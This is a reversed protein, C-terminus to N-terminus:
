VDTSSYWTSTVHLQTWCVNNYLQWCCTFQWCELLPETLEIVSYTVPPNVLPNCQQIENTTEPQKKNRRWFAKVKPDIRVVKLVVVLTHYAIVLGTICLIIGISVQSLIICNTQNTSITYLIAVSLIVLNLLSSYELLNLLWIKYVGGFIALYVFLCIIVVIIALLNIAPDGSTNRGRMFRGRISFVSWM